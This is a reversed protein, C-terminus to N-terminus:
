RIPEATRLPALRLHHGEPDTVPLSASGNSGSEVSTGFRQSWAELDTRVTKKVLLMGLAGTYFAHNEAVRGTIATVHHLGGIPEM